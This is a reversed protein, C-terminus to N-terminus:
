FGMVCRIWDALAKAYESLADAMKKERIKVLETLNKAEWLARDRRDAARRVMEAFVAEYFSALPAFPLTWADPIILHGTQHNTNEQAAKLKREAENLATNADRLEDEAKKLDEKAAGLDAQAKKLAEAAKQLRALEAACDRHRWPAFFLTSIALFTDVQSPGVGVPMRLLDLPSDVLALAPASARFGEVIDALRPGQANARAAQDAKVLFASTTLTDELTAAGHEHGEEHREHKDDKQTVTIDQRRIDGIKERQGSETLGTWYGSAFGLPGFLTAADFEVEGDEPVVPTSWEIVAENTSNKDNSPIRPPQDGDRPRVSAPDVQLSGGTGTFTIHLDAARKGTANKVKIHAASPM